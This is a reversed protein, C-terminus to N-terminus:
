LYKRNLLRSRASRLMRPGLFRGVWYNTSDGLITAIFLLGMLKWLDFVGRGALAGCTFLLSDGPLFPAFVLGTEAFVIGCVVLYTGWVGHASTFSILHDDLNRIFDLAAAFYDM